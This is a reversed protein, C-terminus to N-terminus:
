DVEHGVFANNNHTDIVAKGSSGCVKCTWYMHLEGYGNEEGDAVEISAGCVPCIEMDEEEDEDDKMVIEGGCYGDKICEAIHEQTAEDLDEWRVEKGDLTLDFKVNWWGLKTM